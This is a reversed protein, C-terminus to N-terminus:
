LALHLLPAGRELMEPAVAVNSFGARSAIEECARGLSRPESPGRVGGGGRPSRSFGPSASHAWSFGKTAGASDSPM